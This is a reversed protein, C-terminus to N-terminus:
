LFNNEEVKGYCFQIWKVKRGSIVIIIRKSMFKAAALGM